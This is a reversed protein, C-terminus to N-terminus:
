FNWWSQTVQRKITFFTFTWWTFTIIITVWIQSLKICSNPCLVVRLSLPVFELLSHSQTSPYLNPFGWSFSQCHRTLYICGIHNQRKELLCNSSVNSFVCHLLVLCICDIHSHMKEPLRKSSVTIYYDLNIWVYKPLFSNQSNMVHFQKIVYFHHLTPIHCLWIGVM